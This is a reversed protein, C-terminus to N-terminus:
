RPMKNLQKSLGQTWGILKRLTDASMITVHLTGYKLQNAYRKNKSSKSILTQPKYFQGKPVKTIESWYNLSEDYQCNDHIHIRMRISKENIGCRERFFRMAFLIILPDSNVFRVMWKEKRSGEALFLGLGLYFLEKKTLVKIESSYKKLEKSIGARYIEARKKNYKTINESSQLKAASINKNKIAQSLPISSLWLSLTGKSIKLESSIQSYSLGQKRLEIARTRSSTSNKM